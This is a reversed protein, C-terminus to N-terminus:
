PQPRVQTRHRRIAVGKHECHFDVTPHCHQGVLAVLNTECSLGTARRVDGTARRVDCWRLRPRRAALGATKSSQSGTHVDKAKVPM